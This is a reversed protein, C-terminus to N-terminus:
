GWVSSADLGGAISGPFYNLPGGTAFATNLYGYFRPGTAGGTFTRWGYAVNIYSNTGIFGAYSFNIGHTNVLTFWLGVVLSGDYGGFMSGIRSYFHVYNNWVIQGGFAAIASGSTPVGSFACNG